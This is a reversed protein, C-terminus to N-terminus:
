WTDLSHGIKGCNICTSTSKVCTVVLVVPKTVINVKPTTLLADYSLSIPGSEECVITVEKTWDLYKTEYM